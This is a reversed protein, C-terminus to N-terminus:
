RATARWPGRVRGPALRRADDDVFDWGHLDDVYGNGDDDVGPKGQAERTNTWLQNRLEPHDIDRATTSCRSRSRRARARKADWALSGAVYDVWWQNGDRYGCDNTSPDDVPTAPILTSCALARCAYSAPMLSAVAAAGASMALLLLISRAIARGM